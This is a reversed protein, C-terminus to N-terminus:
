VGPEPRRGRGTSRAPQRPVTGLCQALSWAM